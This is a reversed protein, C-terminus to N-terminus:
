VAIYIFSGSDSAVIHILRVFMIHLLLIWEYFVQTSHLDMHTFNLAPLILQYSFFDGSHNGRPLLPCTVVPPTLLPAETTSLLIRNKQRPPLNVPTNM